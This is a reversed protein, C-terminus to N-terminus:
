ASTIAAIHRNYATSEPNIVQVSPSPGQPECGLGKTLQQGYLAVVTDIGKRILESTDAGISQYFRPNTMCEHARTMDDHQEKTIGLKFGKAISLAKRMDGAAVASRVVDTKKTYGEMVMAKKM